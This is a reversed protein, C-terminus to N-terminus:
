LGIIEGCNCAARIEELYAQMDVTDLGTGAVVVRNQDVLVKSLM